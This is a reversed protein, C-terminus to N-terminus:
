SAEKYEDHRRMWEPDAAENRGKPACASMDTGGPHPISNTM